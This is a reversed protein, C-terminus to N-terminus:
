IDDREPQKEEVAAKQNGAAILLDHVVPDISDDKSREESLTEERPM